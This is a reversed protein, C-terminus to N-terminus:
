RDDMLFGIVCAQSAPAVQGELSLKGQHPMGVAPHSGEQALGGRCPAPVKPRDSSRRAAGLCTSKASLETMILM